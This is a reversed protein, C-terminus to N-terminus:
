KKRATKSAGNNLWAQLEQQSNIKLLMLSLRDLQNNNLKQVKLLLEPPLGGVKQNLLKQLVTLKGKREGRQEGRREGRRAGKREGEKWSETLWGKILRSEKLMNVEKHFQSLVVREGFARIDVVITTALLDARLKSDSVKELLQQQVEMIRPDPRKYFLPLFPALEKLEGSVIRAEHEWLLIKSLTFRNSLAGLRNEFGDPFSTYKGKELYVIVAIAPRRLMYQMGLTKLVFKPLEDPKPQLMAEYILYFAQRGDKILLAKDVRLEPVNIQSDAITRFQIKRKRGFLLDLFCDPKLAMIIKFAQDIEQM